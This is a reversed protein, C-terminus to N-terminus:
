EDRKFASLKMLSNMLSSLPGYKLSNVAEGLEQLEDASDYINGTDRIARLVKQAEMLPTMISNFADLGDKATQKVIDNSDEHVKIKLM